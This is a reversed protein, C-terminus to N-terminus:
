DFDAKSRYAGEGLYKIRDRHREYFGDMEKQFEELFEVLNFFNTQFSLKLNSYESIDFIEHPLTIIFELDEEFLSPFMSNFENYPMDVIEGNENLVKVTKNIRSKQEEEKKDEWTIAQFKWTPIEMTEYSSGKKTKLINHFFLHLWDEEYCDTIKFKDEIIAYNDKSLVSPNFLPKGNLLIALSYEIEDCNNLDYYSFELDFVQAKLTAM